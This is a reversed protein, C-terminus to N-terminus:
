RTLYKPVDLNEEVGVVVRGPAGRQGGTRKGGGKKWDGGVVCRTQGM